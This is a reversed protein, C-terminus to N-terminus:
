DGACPMRLELRLRQGAVVVDRWAPAELRLDGGRMSEVLEPTCRRLTGLQLWRTERRQWVEMTLSPGVLVEPTGDGNLDLMALDCGNSCRLGLREGEQALFDPPVTLGPPIHRLVPLRPVAPAPGEDRRQPLTSLPPRALAARGAEGLRAQFLRTDFRDPSTTGRELRALQNELSLREPSLLPTNLLALLLLGLWALGHNVPGLPTMEPRLAAVAYGLAYLAAMLAAAAGLVREPTLGYQDIRLWLAWLALGALVPLTLAGLRAGLAQLRPATAVVLGDQHVANVLIVLLASAGLLGVTAFETGWLRQLGTVPLALLFGAVLLALLPTLWALLTLLVTRLALSLRERLGLLALGLGLILGSAPLAFSRRNVLRELGELGILSFLAAGAQLVLWFAGLFLFALVLRLSDHWAQEFCDAYAPPWHRARATAGLLHHGLFVIGIACVVLRASPPDAADASYPGADHWAMAALLATAGALWPWLLRAPWRGLALMLSLPLLSAALLALAYPGPATVWAPLGAPAGRLLLHLALGQLLGVVPLLADARRLPHPPADPPM